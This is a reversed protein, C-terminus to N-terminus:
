QVRRTDITGQLPQETTSALPVAIGTAVAGAVAAAAGWFWWKTWIRFQKKELPLELNRVQGGAITIEVSRTLYGPANAEVMHGGVTLEVETQAAPLAKGDIRAVASAPVLSLHLKGTKPIAELTIQLAPPPMGAFLEVERRMPKYGEASFELVHHGAALTLKSEVRGLARGDVIVVANEPAVTLALDVLLATMEVIMREVEARRQPTGKPDGSAEALYKRLTAISEAYRFLGKQCLGINYLLVPLHHARDGAEFEALAANFNGENYLAVGQTFHRKAEAIAAEEGAGSDQAHALGGLLCLCM